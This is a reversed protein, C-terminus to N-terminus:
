TPYQQPQDTGGLHADVPQTPTPSHHSVVPWWGLVFGQIVAVLRHTLADAQRSYEALPKSLLNLAAVVQDGIRHLAHETLEVLVPRSQSEALVGVLDGAGVGSLRLGREFCSIWKPELVEIM